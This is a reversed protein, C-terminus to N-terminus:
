WHFILNRMCTGSVLTLIATYRIASLTTAVNKITSLCHLSDFDNASDAIFATPHEAVLQFSEFALKASSSSLNTRLYDCAALQHICSFM